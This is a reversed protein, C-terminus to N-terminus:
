YSIKIKILQLLTKVVCCVMGPARRISLCQVVSTRDILATDPCGEACWINHQLYLYLMIDSRESHNSKRGRHMIIGFLDVFVFSMKGATFIELHEELRIVLEAIM